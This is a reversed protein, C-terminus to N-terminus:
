KQDIGCVTQQQRGNYDILPQTFSQQCNISALQFVTYIRKQVTTGVISAKVEAASLLNTWQDFLWDDPFWEDIMPERTM